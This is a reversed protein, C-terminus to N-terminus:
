SSPLKGQAGSRGTHGSLRQILDLLNSLHVPKRLVATAGSISHADHGTIVIVTPESLDSRWNLLALFETGNMIPMDLDVLILGPPLLGSALRELAQQGNAAQHCRYGHMELLEALAERSGTDDDVVLVARSDLALCGRKTESTVVWGNSLLANFTGSKRASM